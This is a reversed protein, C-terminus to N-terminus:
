CRQMQSLTVVIEDMAKRVISAPQETQNVMISFVVPSYKPVNIYGALSVVGTMTGTKAQVIGEAPTNRFRNTLTGTKGAVPLSARYIEAVPSKTMVQLTQVLTEPSILNKRSLGSGDVISYGTSDVGLQTLTTKIVELGADASSQTTSKPLKKIALARLLSEAFLNNSNVNTQSILEKLPPSEVFALEQESKTVLALGFPEVVRIDEAALARRFRRLFYDVPELVPLDVSAPESNVPLQGEIYLNRGKFDRTINVFRPQNEATTLAQNITLWQRAEDPDTWVVKVPRGATQPLLKLSFVNQNLMFSNVPAGYDSQIDEWEWSPHVIAGRIYSDDAYLRRVVKVGKENLQKALAALQTDSLSPDGRGVVRLGGNGDSYVSTRIRFDSGLQQLAAATTLLKTTSAPIFYKQADHSYLTQNSSLPQVLIGWRARRFLPRNIIADIYIPLQSSCITKATTQTPAVETQAQALDQAIAVQTGAFLLLFGISIQKLM